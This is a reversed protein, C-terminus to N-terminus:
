SGSIGICWICGQYKRQSRQPTLYSNIWSWKNFDEKLIPPGMLPSSKVLSPHIQSRQGPGLIPDIYKESGTQM